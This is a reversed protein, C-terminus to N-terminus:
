FYTKEAYVRNTAALVAARVLKTQETRKTEICPLAEGTFNFAADLANEYEQCFFNYAIDLPYTDEQISFFTAIQQVTFVNKLMCTVIIHVVHDLGYKKKVPAPVAKNKVYNSIMAGTIDESLIPALATNTLTLVQDLYLDIAPIEEYRPCRFAKVAEIAEEREM